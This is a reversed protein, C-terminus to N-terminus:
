PSRPTASIGITGTAAATALAIASAVPTRRVRMGIVGSRTSAASAAVRPQGVASVPDPKLRLIQDTLLGSVRYKPVLALSAGHGARSAAPGGTRGTEDAGM